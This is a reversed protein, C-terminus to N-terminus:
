NFELSNSLCGIHKAM